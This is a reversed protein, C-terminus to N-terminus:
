ELGFDNADQQRPLLYRLIKEPEAADTQSNRVSQNLLMDCYEEHTYEM